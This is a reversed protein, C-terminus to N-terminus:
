SSSFVQDSRRDVFLKKSLLVTILDERKELSSLDLEKLRERPFVNVLGRIM